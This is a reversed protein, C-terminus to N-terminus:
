REDEDEEEEFAEFLEEQLQFNHRTIIVQIIIEGIWRVGLAVSVFLFSFVLIMNLTTGEMSYGINLWSSNVLLLILSLLSYEWNRKHQHGVLYTQIKVKWRSMLYTCKVTRLALLMWLEQAVLTISCKLGKMGYGLSQM